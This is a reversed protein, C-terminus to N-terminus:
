EKVHIAPFLRRVQKRLETRLAKLRETEAWAAKLGAVDDRDLKDEASTSAEIAKEIEALKFRNIILSLATAADLLSGVMVEARGLSNAPVNEYAEEDDLGGSGSSHPGGDDEFTPPEIGMLDFALEVDSWNPDVQAALYFPAAIHPHTLDSATRQAAKQRERYRRVKEANSLAM